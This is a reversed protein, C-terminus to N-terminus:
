NQATRMKTHMQQMFKQKRKQHWAQLKLPDELLLWCNEISQVSEEESTIAGDGQVIKPQWFPLLKNWQRSNPNEKKSFQKM